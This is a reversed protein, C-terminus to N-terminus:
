RGDVSAHVSSASRRPGERSLEGCRWLGAWWESRSAVGLASCVSDGSKEGGCLALESGVAFQAIGVAEASCRVQSGM